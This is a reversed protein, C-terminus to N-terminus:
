AAEQQKTLYRGVVLRGQETTQYYQRGWTNQMKNVRAILDRELLRDILPWRAEVALGPWRDWLDAPIQPAFLMAELVLPAYDIVVPVPAPAFSIEGDLWRLTQKLLDREARLKVLERWRGIM